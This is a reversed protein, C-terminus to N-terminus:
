AHAALEDSGLLRVFEDVEILACMQQVVTGALWTRKGEAGRWRVDGPNLTIVEEVADCALGWEGDGILIIKHLKEVGHDIRYKAPVVITATDIVKIQKGREPLLGLFWPAHGPLETVGRWELIGNLKDLPISLTLGAVKFLLAQFSGQGQEAPAAAPSRAPLPAPAVVEAVQPAAEVATVVPEAIVPAAVTATEMAPIERLLADLYDVLVQQTDLKLEPNNHAGSM